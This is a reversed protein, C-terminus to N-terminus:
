QIGCSNFGPLCRGDKKAANADILNDTNTSGNGCSNFGPLCRGEKKGANVDSLTNAPKSCPSNGTDGGVDCSNFGPLCRKEDTDAAKSAKTSISSLVEVKEELVQIRALMEEIIKTNNM